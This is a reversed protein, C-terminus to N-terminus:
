LIHRLSLLGATLAHVHAHIRHHVVHNRDNRMYTPKVWWPCTGVAVQLLGQGIAAIRYRMEPWKSQAMAFFPM